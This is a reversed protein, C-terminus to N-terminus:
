HTIENKSIALSILLKPRILIHSQGYVPNHLQAAQDSRNTMVLTNNALSSIQIVRKDLWAFNHLCFTLRMQEFIRIATCAQM